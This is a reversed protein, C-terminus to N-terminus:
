KTKYEKELEKNVEEWSSDEIRVCLDLLFALDNPAYDETMEFAVPFNDLIRPNLHISRVNDICLRKSQM